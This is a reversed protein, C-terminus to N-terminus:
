VERIDIRLTQKSGQPIVYVSAKTDEEVIDLRKAKGEGVLIAADIIKEWLGGIAKM